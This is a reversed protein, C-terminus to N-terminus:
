GSCLSDLLTALQGAQHRRDYPSVNWDDFDACEGRLHRRVEEALHAAVGEVDAPLFCSARPHGRLLDWVEGRPAITLIPRKVAMYEFIKAPVVRRAGPLDSLLVCLGHASQLFDLAQTHAVYSHTVVRCPLGVLRALVQEQASTRRGAFVLELGAALAPAQTAFRRVAEVLPAVSTLEWLTGVYALRYPQRHDPLAARRTPFDDPDFGNYIWEIQAASPAATGIANLAGASARTTALLARAVRVVRRQMRGQIWRSFPGHPKNEMYASSLDWEDRYDLVLPLGTRRSLAAGVLFSSFPPATAVIADHPVEQLLRMGERVAGPLWLIQADPQLVLNGVRRVVGKLLRRLLGDGGGPAAGNASVAAKLAYGPEWTRAKRLITGPPLDAALTADYVPVSPNAVTLVSAEWGFDPLYKVFKAARQVGAGGVPPFLYSVFLVRRPRPPAGPTPGIPLVTPRLVTSASV